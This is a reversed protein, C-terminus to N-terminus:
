SLPSLTAEDVCFVVERKERGKRIKTKDTGKWEGVLILFRIDNSDCIGIVFPCDDITMLATNDALFLVLNTISHLQAPESNLLQSSSHTNQLISYAKFQELIGWCLSEIILCLLKSPQRPIAKLHAWWTNPQRGFPSCLIFPLLKNDWRKRCAIM